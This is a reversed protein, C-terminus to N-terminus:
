APPLVSRHKCELGGIRNEDMSEEVSRGGAPLDTERINRQGSTVMLALSDATM